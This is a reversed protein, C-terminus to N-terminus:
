IKNMDTMKTFEDTDFCTRLENIRESMWKIITKLWKMVSKWEQKETMRNHTWEVGNM